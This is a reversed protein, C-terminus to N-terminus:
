VSMRLKGPTKKTFSHYITGNDISAANRRVVIGKTEKAKLRSLVTERIEGAKNKMREIQKQVPRIVPITLAM